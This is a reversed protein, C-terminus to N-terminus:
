HGAAARPGAIAIEIAGRGVLGELVPVLTGYATDPSAEVTVRDFSGLADICAALRERDLSASSIAPSADIAPSRCDAGVDLLGRRVYLGQEHLRLLVRAPLAAAEAASVVSGPDAPLEIPGGLEGLAALAAAITERTEASAPAEALSLRITREGAETRVVLWPEAYGTLGGAYIARLVREWAVDPAARISFVSPGGGPERARDAEAARALADRLGPVLLPAPDVTPVTVEVVPFDPMDPPALSAARAREPAPWTEVLARNSVAYGRPAVEITLSPLVPPLDFRRATPLDASVSEPPTESAPPSSPSPPSGSCECGSLSLLWLLALARRM